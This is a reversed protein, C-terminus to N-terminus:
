ACTGCILPPWVRTVTLYFYVNRFIVRYLRSSLLMCLISGLIQIKLHKGLHNQGDVQNPLWQALHGDAMFLVFRISNLTGKEQDEPRLRLLERLSKYLDRELEPFGKGRASHDGESDASLIVISHERGASGLVTVLMQFTALAM